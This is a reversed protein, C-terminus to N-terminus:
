IIVEETIQEIQSDKELMDCNERMDFASCASTMIMYPLLLMTGLGFFLSLLTAAPLWLYFSFPLVLLDFKIYKTMKSSILLLEYIPEEPEETILYPVYYLRLAMYVAPFVFLLLGCVFMAMLLVYTMLVRIYLKRSKFVLLLDIKRQDAHAIDKLANLLSWTFPIVLFVFYLITILWNVWSVFPLFGFLPRIVSYTGTGKLVLNGEGINYLYSAYNTYEYSRLSFGDFFLIFFVLLLGCLFAYWFKKKFAEKAQYKYDRRRFVPHVREM